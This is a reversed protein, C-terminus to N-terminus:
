APPDDTKPLRAEHRRKTEEIIDAMMRLLGPNSAPVSIGSLVNFVAEYYLQDEM